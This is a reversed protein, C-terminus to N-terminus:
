DISDTLHISYTFNPLLWQWCSYCFNWSKLLKVCYMSIKYSIQLSHQQNSFEGTCSKEFWHSLSQSDKGRSVSVDEVPLKWPGQYFPLFLIVCPSDQIRSTMFTNKCRNWQGSSTKHGWNTALSSFFTTKKHKWPSYSLDKGCILGARLFKSDM